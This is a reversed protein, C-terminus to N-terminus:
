DIIFGNTTNRFIITDAMDYYIFIFLLFVKRWEEPTRETNALMWKGFRKVFVDRWTSGILQYCEAREHTKVFRDYKTIFFDKFWVALETGDFVTTYM